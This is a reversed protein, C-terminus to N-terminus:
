KKKKPNSAKKVNKVKQKKPSVKKGMKVGDWKKKITADLNKEILPRVLEVDAKNATSFGGRIVHRGNELKELKGM